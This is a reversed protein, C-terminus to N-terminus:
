FVKLRHEERLMLSWTECGYLVVFLNIIEHIRMKVNKSLLLYSFLEPSFSVGCYGFEM